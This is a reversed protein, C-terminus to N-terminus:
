LRLGLLILETGQPIPSIFVHNGSQSHAFYENLLSKLLPKRALVGKLIAREAGVGLLIYFMTILM